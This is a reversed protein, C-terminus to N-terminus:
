YEDDDDYRHGGIRNHAYDDNYDYDSDYGYGYLDGETTPETSETPKKNEGPKAGNAIDQLTDQNEDYIDTLYSGEEVLETIPLDDYSLDIQYPRFYKNLVDVTAKKHISWM